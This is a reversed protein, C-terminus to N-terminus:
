FLRLQGKGPRRNRDKQEEESLEPEVRYQAAVKKRIHSAERDSFIRTSRDIPEDWYQRAHSETEKEAEDDDYYFSSEAKQSGNKGLMGYKQIAGQALKAGHQSLLSDARPLYGHEHVAAAALNAFARSSGRRTMGAWFVHSIDVPDMNGGGWRLQGTRDEHIKHVARSDPDNILRQHEENLVPDTHSIGISGVPTHGVVKGEADRHVIAAAGTTGWDGSTVKYTYEKFQDPSITM